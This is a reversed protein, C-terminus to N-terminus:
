PKKKKNKSNKFKQNRILEAITMDVSRMFDPDSKADPDINLLLERIIDIDIKM